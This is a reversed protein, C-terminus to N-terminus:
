FSWRFGVKANIGPLPAKDKLFSSHVRAETNLLNSVKMFYTLKGTDLLQHKYISMDLLKYAATTRENHALKKAKAYHTLMLNFHWQQFEVNLQSSFRLPPIRPLNGGKDLSVDVYDVFSSLTVYDNFFYSLQLEGGMLNVREQRTLYIPLNGNDLDAFDQYAFNKVESYFVSSAFVLNDGNYRWGLDLTNADESHLKNYFTDPKNLAKNGQTAMNFYAGVDFTSTGLHEGFAFLESASLARQSHNFNVLLQQQENINWSLGTAWSLPTFSITSLTNAQMLSPQIKVHEIRAGVHWELAKYQRKQTAFLAVTDTKTAPSNAEEGVPTIQSTQWHVGTIGQWDALWRHHIQAKIESSKNSIQTAVSADEIEQLQYDTHGAKITIEDIYPSPAFWKAQLQLRKQTTEVFPLEEHGHEGEDHHEAGEHEEHGILGYQSDSYSFAGGIMFNDDIFSSGITFGRSNAQSNELIGSMEDHEEHEEHEEHDDHEEHEAHGLHADGPIKTEKANRAFADVYYAIKGTSTELSFAVNKGEDVSSLSASIEASTEPILKVPISKDIVNVVGGIAGSGHLLTAPGRLIEIQLANSSDGSVQHDPASRSADGGDLGNKMVKVRPGDMGRIVPSSASPGFYSAHIGPNFKLTEGLSSSQMMDLQEREILTSSVLSDLDSRLLHSQAKVSIVEISLTTPIKVIEKKSPKDTGAAVNTTVLLLTSM